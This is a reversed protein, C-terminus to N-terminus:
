DVEEITPEKAGQRAQAGCSEAGGRVGGAGGQGYLKSVIMKLSNELEKQKETYEEKEGLQNRDLWALASDLQNKAESIDSASLKTKVEDQDLSSKMNFIYAELGNKAAVREKQAEDEDKFKEADNVM